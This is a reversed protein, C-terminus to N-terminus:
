LEMDDEDPPKEDNDFFDKYYSYEAAFIVISGIAWILALGLAIVIPYTLLVYGVAAIVSMILGLTITLVFAICACEAVVGLWYKVSKM